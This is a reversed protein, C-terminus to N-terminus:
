CKSEWVEDSPIWGLARFWDFLIATKNYIRNFCFECLSCTGQKCRYPVMIECRKKQLTRESSGLFILECSYMRAQTLITEKIHLYQSPIVRLVSAIKLEEPTLQDYDKETPLLTLMGGVSTFLRVSFFLISLPINQFSPKSVRYLL